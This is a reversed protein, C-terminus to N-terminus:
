YPRLRGFPKISSNIQTKGHRKSPLPLSPLSPTCSTTLPISVSNNPNQMAEEMLTIATKAEIKGLARIMEVQTEWTREDEREKLYALYLQDSLQLLQNKGIKKAASRRKESKSNQLDSAIHAVEEVSNKNLKM